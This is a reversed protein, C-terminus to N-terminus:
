CLKVMDGEKISDPTKIQCNQKALTELPISYKYSIDWLTEGNKATHFPTKPLSKERTDAETFVFSYEIINEKPPCLMQFDTFYAEVSPLGYVSLVGKGGQAFLRNIKNFQELCDDGYFEGTGSIVTNRRMMERVDMSQTLYEVSVTKKGNSIKLTKPNNNWTVGKYRIGPCKM